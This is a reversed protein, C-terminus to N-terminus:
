VKTIPLLDSRQRSEGKQSYLEFGAFDGRLLNLIQQTSSQARHTIRANIDNLRACEDILDNLQVWNDEAIKKHEPSLKSILIDVGSKDVPLQQAQLLKCRTQNDQELKSILAHKQGLLHTFEEFERNVLLEREKEMIFKLSEYGSLETMILEGFHPKISPHEKASHEKSLPTDADM